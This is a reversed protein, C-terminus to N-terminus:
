TNSNSRNGTGAIHCKYDYYVDQSRWVILQVHTLMMHDCVIACTLLERLLFYKRM